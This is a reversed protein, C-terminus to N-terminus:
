SVVQYNEMWWDPIFKRSTQLLHYWSSDLIYFTSSDTNSRTTRGCAQMLDILTRQTYWQNSIEMRRKIWADGLFPFPLKAVINFRGLDGKLDLGETVSPSVLISPQTANLFNKIAVERDTTEGDTPNHHYVKHTGKRELVEIVWKAVAFSATHIVGNETAHMSLITNLMNEMNSLGDVDSSWQYNMKMVPLFVVPRNEAPFASDLSMFDVDALEIGLDHCFQEKNPITGSMLLFDEAYPKINAFGGKAYLPKITWERDTAQYIIYQEEFKELLQPVSCVAGALNLNAQMEKALGAVSPDGEVADEIQAALDEIADHLHPLLAQNIWDLASEASGMIDQGPFAIGLKGCRSETISVTNFDVLVTELNHCEDIVMTKRPKLVGTYTFFSFASAYNMIATPSQALENRKAKYCTCNCKLVSEGISCPVPGKECMYNSKGFLQKAQILENTSFENMYQQQLIKQPTLIFGKHNAAEIAGGAKWRSYTVGILSKGSGVPAELVKYKKTSSQIWNLASIQEERPASEIPWYDLIDNQNTM